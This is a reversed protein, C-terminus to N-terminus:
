ATVLGGQCSRRSACSLTNTSRSRPPGQIAQHPAQSPARSQEIQQRSRAFQPSVYQHARKLPLTSSDKQTSGQMPHTLRPRGSKALCPHDDIAKYQTPVRSPRLQRLPPVRLQRTQHPSGQIAQALLLSPFGYDCRHFICTREPNVQLNMISVLATTLVLSSGPGRM